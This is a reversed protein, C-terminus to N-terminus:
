LLGLHSPAEGKPFGSVVVNGIAWWSNNSTDYYGFTLVVNQAGEPNDLPITVTENTNHDHYFPSGSNSVWLMVEISDGGDYSVTISATQSSEPCWSSDFMIEASGTEMDSIDIPPTSMFANYTGIPNGKDDYEDSDAVVVTGIALEFESRRQDDLSAWWDNLLFCALGVKIPISGLSM